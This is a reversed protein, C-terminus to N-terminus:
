ESEERHKRRTPNKKETERPSVIKTHAIDVEIENRRAVQVSSRQRKKKKKKWERKRERNRLPNYSNDEPRDGNGLIHGCSRKPTVSPIHTALAALTALEGSTSM